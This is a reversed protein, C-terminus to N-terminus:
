LLRRCAPCGEAHERLWLDTEPSTLGELHLPLLDQFIKCSDM